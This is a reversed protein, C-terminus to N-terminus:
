VEYENYGLSTLHDKLAATAKQKINSVLAEHDALSVTFVTPVGSLRVTLDVWPQGVAEFFRVEEVDPYPHEETKRIVKAM